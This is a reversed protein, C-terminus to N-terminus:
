HLQCRWITSASSSITGVRHVQPAEWLRANPGAPKRSQRQVMTGSLKRILVAPATGVDPSLKCDRTKLRVAVAKATVVFQM